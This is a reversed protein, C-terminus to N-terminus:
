VEDATEAARSTERTAKRGDGNTPAQVAESARSFLGRAMDVTAEGATRNATILRQLVQRTEEQADSLEGFWQRTVDLARGQAKTTSEIVSSALGPIDFPAAIWKKALEVFERQGEQAEEILATAVRHGRDNAARVADILVDSGENIAEFYKNAADNGAM